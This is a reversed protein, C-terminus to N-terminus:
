EYNALEKGVQLKCYNDRRNLFVFLSCFFDFYYNKGTQESHFVNILGRTAKVARSHVKKM